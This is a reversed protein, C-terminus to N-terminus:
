GFIGVMSNSKDSLLIGGSRDRLPLFHETFDYASSLQNLVHMPFDRVEELITM